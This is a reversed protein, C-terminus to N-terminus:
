NKREQPYTSILKEACVEEPIEYGPRRTYDAKAEWAKTFTKPDNIAFRAHLTKGDKDLTYRETLKMADSHPMGADDLLTGERFSSSDIVLTDGDWRAVSYGQYLPDVDNPDPLKEGFYARRPMRNLQAVFYVTKDRQLIEFPENWLMLRPLGPPLCVKTEDFSRDGKASSAIHKDYIAKAEPTLPPTKDDVTKLMTPHSVISWVGTLNPAVAWTLAPALALAGLAFARRM